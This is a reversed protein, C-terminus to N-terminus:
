FLIIQAKELCFVAAAMSGKRSSLVVACFCVAEWEEDVRAANKLLGSCIGCHQELGYGTECFCRVAAQVSLGKKYFSDFCFAPALRTFRMFFIKLLDFGSIAGTLGFAAIALHYALCLKECFPLLLCFFLGSCVKSRSPALSPVQVRMNNSVSSGSDLADAM